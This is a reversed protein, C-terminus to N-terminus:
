DVAPLAKVSSGDYIRFGSADGDGTDLLPIGYITDDKRIRLKHGDLTVTGITVTGTDERLRLGIDIYNLGWLRLERTYHSVEMPCYAYGDFEVSGDFDYSGQFEPDGEYYDCYCEGDCVCDKSCDCDGSCEFDGQPEPSGNYDVNGSFEPDNGEYGWTVCEDGDWEWCECSGDCECDGSCECNDESCSCEGNFSGSSISRIRIKSIDSWGTSSSSTIDGGTNINGTLISNHWAGGYYLDLYWTATISGGRISSGFYHVIEAKTINYPSSLTIIINYNMPTMNDGSIVEGGVYTGCYTAVNNDKTNAPAGTTYGTGTATGALCKNASAGFVFPSLSLFLILCLIKKLRNQVM